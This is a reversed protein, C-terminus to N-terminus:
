NLTLKIHKPTNQKAELHSRFDALHDTLPKSASAREPSILGWQALKDKIKAPLKNLWHILSPDIAGGTGSAYEALKCINRGLEETAAKSTFGALKRERGDITFVIDHNATSKPEGTKRDKYTQKTLRFKAM